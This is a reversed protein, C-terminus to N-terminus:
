SYKGNIVYFDYLSLLVRTINFNCVEIHNLKSIGVVRSTASTAFIEDASYMESLTFNEEKIEIKNLIEQMNISLNKHYDKNKILEILRFRTIGPLLNQSLPPTFIINNKVLFINGRSTEHINGDEDHYLVESFGLNFAENRKIVSPLLSTIKIDRYKWRIDEYSKLSVFQLDGQGVKCDYDQIEILFNQSISALDTLWRNSNGRSIIIMVRGNKINNKEILNSCITCIEEKSYDLKLYIAAATNQMRIYHLNFDVMVSEHVLMIDYLGDGFHFGRDDTSINADKKEIYNGNLFVLNM